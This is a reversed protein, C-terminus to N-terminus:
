DSRTLVVCSRTARPRAQAQCERFLRAFADIEEQVKGEARMEAVAQVCLGM